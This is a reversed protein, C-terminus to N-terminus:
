LVAALIGLIVLVLVALIGITKLESSIYPNRAVTTQVRASSKKEAPIPTETVATSDVTNVAPQNVEAATRSGGSQKIRKSPPLNKSRKRRSKAPM